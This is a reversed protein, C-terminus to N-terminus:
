WMVEDERIEYRRQRTTRMFDHRAQECREGPSVKITPRIATTTEPGM